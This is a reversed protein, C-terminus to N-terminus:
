DETKLQNDVFKEGTNTLVWAKLKDKKERADMMHGKSININVKNNVNGPVSERASRFGEVLDRVNFSKEGSYHELYYGIVLTKQIDDSPKKNLIFEKLSLIKGENVQKRPVGELKDLRQEIAELKEIIKGTDIDNM